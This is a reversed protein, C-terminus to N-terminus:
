DDFDKMEVGAKQYGKKSRCSCCGCCCFIAKMCRLCCGQESGGNSPSVRSTSEGESAFTQTFTRCCFSFFCCRCICELISIGGIDRYCFVCYRVIICQYLMCGLLPFGFIVGALTLMCDKMASLNRDRVPECNYIDRSCWEFDIMCCYDCLEGTIELCRDTYNPDDHDVLSVKTIALVQRGCLQLTVVAIVLIFEFM